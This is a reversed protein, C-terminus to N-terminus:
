RYLDEAPINTLGPSEVHLIVHLRNSIEIFSEDFADPGNLYLFEAMNRPMIERKAVTLTFSYTTHLGILSGAKPRTKFRVLHSEIEGGVWLPMYFWVSGQGLMDREFAEFWNSQLQNLVLSCDAEAEDTDFQRRIINGSETETTLRRDVPHVGYGDVQARPMWSPWTYSAM